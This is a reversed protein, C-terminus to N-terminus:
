YFILINHLTTPGFILKKSNCWKLLFFISNRSNVNPPARLMLRVMLLYYSSRQLVLMTAHVMRRQYRFSGDGYLYM